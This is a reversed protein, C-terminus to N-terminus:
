GYDYSGGKRLTYTTHKTKASFIAFFYGMALLRLPLPEVGGPLPLPPM